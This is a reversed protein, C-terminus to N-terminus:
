STVPQEGASALPADSLAIEISDIEDVLMHRRDDDDTLELEDDALAVEVADHRDLVVAVVVAAPQSRDATALVLAPANKSALNSLKLRRCLSSPRRRTV